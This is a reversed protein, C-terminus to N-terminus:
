ERPLKMLLGRVDALHALTFSPLVSNAQRQSMGLADSGFVIWLLWKQM